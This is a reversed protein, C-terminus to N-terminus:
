KGHLEEQRVQALVAVPSLLPPPGGALVVSFDSSIFPPPPPPPSHPTMESRESPIKSEHRPHLASVRVYLRASLIYDDPATLIYFPRVGRSSLM